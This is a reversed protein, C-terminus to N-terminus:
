APIYDAVLSAFSTGTGKMTLNQGTHRVVVTIEDGSAILPVPFSIPYRRFFDDGSGVHSDVHMQAYVGAGDVLVDFSLEKDVGGTIVYIASFRIEYVSGAKPTFTLTLDPIPTMSSPVPVDNSTRKAFAKTYTDPPTVVADAILDEVQQLTTLDTPDEADAANIAKNGGLDLDGTMPISGDALFDGGGPANANLLFMSVSSDAMIYGTDPGVLGFVKVSVYEGEDLQILLVDTIFTVDQGQPQLVPPMIGELAESGNKFWSLSAGGMGNVKMRAVLLYYGDSPAVFRDKNSGTDHMEAHTTGASNTNAEFTRPSIGAALDASNHAYCYAYTGLAGLGASIAADLQGKNVADGAAAGNGLNTVKFGGMSLAAEMAQTGNAKIYKAAAIAAELTDFDEQAVKAALDALLAVVADDIKQWNANMKAATHVPPRDGQAWQSLELQPTFTEAM